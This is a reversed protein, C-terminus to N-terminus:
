YFLELFNTVKIAIRLVGAKKLEAAYINSHTEPTILLDSTSNAIFTPPAGTSVSTNPNYKIVDEPTSFMGGHGMLTADTM